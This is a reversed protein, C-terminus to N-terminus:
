CFQHTVPPMPLDGLTHYLAVEAARYTRWGGSKRLTLKLRGNYAEVIGSNFAKRARFWNLILEEHKRLTRAIKKMPELRSRMADRTWQKLFKRAWAVANYEWLHQLDEKLLYARVTRLNMALLERLRGRQSGELRQRRKLFLWRSKKLVPSKGEQSLRRAEDARVEDVAKNAKAVIHYRDLIHVADKVCEKIVNLYPKWMDSCVYGILSSREPGFERFFGRLTEETREQGIWLLRRCGADLQYVVTLYKHGSRWAVEDVGIATIGKLDRHKLGYRVASDVSFFVKRWSTHFNRAVEAWSMRKAWTALFNRYAYTVTEKGKSWPVKESVIGCRRCSVRRMRYLLVVAIGWLPVFDFRRPEARRGHRAGQRGCGSCLPLSNARAKVEVEIVEERGRQVIKVEGFIFSKFHSVRNLLTKLQM